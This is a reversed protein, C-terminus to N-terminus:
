DRGYDEASPTWDPSGGVPAYQGDSEAADYEGDDVGWGVQGGAGAAAPADMSVDQLQLLQQQQQEGQQLLLVNSQGGCRSSNNGAGVAAAVAAAAAGGGDAREAARQLMARRWQAMDSVAAQAQHASFHVSYHHPWVAPSNGMVMAAAADAPGPARNPGTREEVFIHRLMNVCFHPSWPAGYEAQKARFVQSLRSTSFQVGWSTVFMFPLESNATLLPHGHEIYPMLVVKLTDPVKFAISKQWKGENKHHPLVL